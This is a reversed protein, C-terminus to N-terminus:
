IMWLKKQHNMTLHTKLYEVVEEMTPMDYVGPNNIKDQLWDKTSKDFHSLLNM